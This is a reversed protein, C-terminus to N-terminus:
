ETEYLYNQERSQPQFGPHLNELDNTEFLVVKIEEILNLLHYRM